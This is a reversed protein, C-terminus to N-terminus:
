AMSGNVYDEMGLLSLIGGIILGIPRRHEIVFIVVKSVTKMTRGKVIIRNCQHRDGPDLTVSMKESTVQISRLM